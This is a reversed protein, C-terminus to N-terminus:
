QLALDEYNFIGKMRKRGTEDTIQVRWKQRDKAWMVNAYGSKSKISKNRCNQPKSASRLNKWRNNQPNRDIHDVFEPIYGEM